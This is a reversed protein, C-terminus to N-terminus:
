RGARVGRCPAQCSKSRCPLCCKGPQCPPVRRCRGRGVGRPCGGGQPSLANSPTSASPCGKETARPVQTQAEPLYMGRHSVHPFQPVSSMKGGSGTGGEGACFVLPAEWFVTMVGSAPLPTPPWEDRGMEQPQKSCSVTAPSLQGTGAPALGLVAGHPCGLPAGAGAGWPVAM